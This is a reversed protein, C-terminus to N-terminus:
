SDLEEFLKDVSDFEAIDEGAELKKLTQATVDNPIRIEFPIGRHYIIQRLYMSIAESMTINLADLIGKARRKTAADVRAQITTGSAM